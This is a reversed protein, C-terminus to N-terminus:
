AALRFEAMRILATLRDVPVRLGNETRPSPLVAHTHGLACSLRWAAPDFETDPSIQVVPTGAPCFMACRLAPGAGCILRAQRLMGLAEPAATGRVDVVTFGLRGLRTALEPWNAVRWAAGGDLFLKRDRPPAAGGLLVAHLTRLVEAPWLWPEAPDAWVMDALAVQGAGRPALALRPLELMRWIETLAARTRPDAPALTAAGEPMHQALAMARLLADQWVPAGGDPTGPPSDVFGIQGALVPAGDPAAPPEGDPWPHATLARGTERRISLRPADARWPLGAEGARAHLWARDAVSVTLPPPLLITQGGTVLRRGPRSEPMDPVAAEAPATEAQRLTVSQGNLTIALRQGGGAQAPLARPWAGRPDYEDTGFALVPGPKVVAPALAGPRDEREWAGRLLAALWPLAAPPAPLFHEDEGAADRFFRAAAAGPEAALFQGAKHLVVMGAHTGPEIDIGPLGSPARADRPNLAVLMPAAGTTWQALPMLKGAGDGGPLLVAGHRSLLAMLPAAGHRAAGDTAERLDLARMADQVGDARRLWAPDIAGFAAYSDRVFDGLPIPVAQTGPRMNARFMGDPARGLAAAIEPFFPHIPHRALDDPLAATDIDAPKHGMMGCIMRAMEALPAIKPHNISHMFCGSARLTATLATADTGFRAFREPMIAFDEAYARMYGLRRFVLTNYLDAAAGAPLGALFAAAAIRSQYPGTPGDVHTGNPKEVYITDPHFGRFNLPVLVHAHPLIERLRSTSLDGAEDNAPATIVHDCGRLWDLIEQQRQPQHWIERMHVNRAQAGPLMAELATCIGFGQCNFLMGIKM